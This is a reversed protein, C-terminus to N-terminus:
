DEEDLFHGYLDYRDPNYKLYEELTRNRKEINHAAWMPILNDLSNIIAPDEIGDLVYRSVPYVHDIHWDGYNCWSMGNLFKSSIHEKLQENSYGLIDYTTSDKTSSTAKLTRYLVKRCIDATKYDEDTAYRERFRKNRRERNETQWKKAREIVLSRNERYYKDKKDKNNANWKEMRSLERERNDEHWKKRYEKSKDSGMCEICNKNCVYKESVHGYKCPKGTFYKNLGQAIAEKRSLIKM